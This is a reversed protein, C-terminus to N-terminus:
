TRHGHGSAFRHRHCIGRDRIPTNAADLPVRVLKGANYEGFFFNGRYAAPFATSDYFCGGSVVGGINQTTATGGGSTENPGAQSTLSNRRSSRIRRVPLVSAVPFVGNFSGAGVGAITAFGGKRFPHATTTTITVVGNARVAGSAAITRSDTGNTRYAITPPLFGTPQNNEYTNWGAHSGRKPLFVQEWNTGVTNSWLQGTTVQFTMTFPNRFGRAWIYDNNPGAGDFFPNDNM